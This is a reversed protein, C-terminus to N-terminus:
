RRRRVFGLGWGALALLAFGTPEPVSQAGVANGFNDSLVLFDSFAVTGDCDIDGLEHGSVDDGFNDSLILFDSFGVTGDGDIDGGTNPDCLELPAGGLQLGAPISTDIETADVGLLAVSAVGSPDSGVSVFVSTKDGGGREWGIHRAEYEGAALFTTGYTNSNGTNADFDICEGDGSVVRTGDENFVTFDAGDVCLQGGDDSNFGFIYDGDEAVVITGTAEWAFDDSGFGDFGDTAPIDVVDLNGSGLEVGNALTEEADALSNLQTGDAADVTRFNWGEKMTPTMGSAGEFGRFGIPAFDGDLEDKEGAAAFLEVFAGGGREFWVLEFDHEGATFDGIGLTFADGTTGPFSMFLEDDVLLEFGDDGDVGITYPGDEPIIVKGRARVIFDDDAVPTDSFFPQKAAGVSYGGGAGQPDAFNITEAFGDRTIQSHPANSELCNADDSEIVALLTEVSDIAPVTTGDALPMGSPINWERVSWFGEGPEPQDGAPVTCEFTPPLTLDAYVLGVAADEFDFIGNEIDEGDYNLQIEAVQMSNQGLRDKLEPFLIMYNSYAATNDFEITQSNADDLEAAGGGNRSDPLALPGEAIKTFSDLSFEAGPDVGTVELDFRELTPFDNTGWLEYAAPDRQVADNAAWFTISTPVDDAQDGITPQVLIGSFVNSEDPNFEDGAFNLYKQGQWDIARTPDEAGPWRNDTFTPEQGIQIGFNQAFVTSVGLTLVFAFVRWTMPLSIM